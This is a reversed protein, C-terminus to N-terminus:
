VSEAAAVEELREIGSNSTGLVVAIREPAYHKWDLGSAARAERLASLAYGATREAWPRLVAPATDPTSTTGRATAASSDKTGASAAARVAIADAARM